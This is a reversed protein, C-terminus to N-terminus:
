GFLTMQEHKPPAHIPQNIIASRGDLHGGFFDNHLSQRSVKLKKRHRSKHPTISPYQVDMYRKVEPPVQQVVLQELQSRVGQVFGLCYMDARETKRVLVRMRACVTDIFRKRSAIIQRLVVSMAYQAIDPNTTPGIFRWEAKDRGNAAILCECGFVRSVTDALIMEWQPPYRAVTSDTKSEQIHMLDVDSEGIGYKRMIAHAQRLANAAEHANDSAALALCKRIKELATAKEM